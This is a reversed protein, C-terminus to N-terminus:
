EQKHFVQSIAEAIMVIYWFVLDMTLDGSLLV